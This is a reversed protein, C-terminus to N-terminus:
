GGGSQKNAWISVFEVIRMRRWIAKNDTPIQPIQSCIIIPQDM